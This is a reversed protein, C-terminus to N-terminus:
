HFSITLEPYRRALRDLFIKAEACHPCGDRVFVEVGRCTLESAMAPVAWLMFLM